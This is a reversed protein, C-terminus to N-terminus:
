VGGVRLLLGGCDSFCFHSLLPPWHTENGTKASGLLIIGFISEAQLGAIVGATHLETAVMEPALKAAEFDPLATPLAQM